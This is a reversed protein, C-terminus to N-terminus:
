IRHQPANNYLKIMSKIEFYQYENEIIRKYIEPKDKFLELYKEKKDIPIYEKSNKTLYSQGKELDRYMSIEGVIIQSLQKEKKDVIVNKYIRDNIKFELLEDPKYSLENGNQNIFNIRDSIMFRRNMKISGRITDNKLPIIYGSAYGKNLTTDIQKDFKIPNKLSTNALDVLLEIDEFTFNNKKILKYLTNDNGLIQYFSWKFNSSYSESSGGVNNNRLGFNNDNLGLKTDNLPNTLFGNDKKDNEDTIPYIKDKYKLFVKKEYNLTFKPKLHSEAYYSIEGSKIELLFESFNTKVSVFRFAGRQFFEVKDARFEQKGDKNKVYVFVNTKWEINGYITDKNKTVLYDQSSCISVYFILIFTTITKTLPRKM